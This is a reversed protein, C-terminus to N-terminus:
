KGLVATRSLAAPFGKLSISFAMPENRESPTAIFKLTTGARLAAAAAGDFQLPVVCGAPLCTRFRLPKGAPKDDIQTTVGAELLLGFPLVLTGIISAGDGPMLEIALLRQRNQGFQQQSLACRKGNARVACAVQWDQFTEQLSTAGGPLSATQARAAQAQSLQLALVLGCLGGAISQVKMM